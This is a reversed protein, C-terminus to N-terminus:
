FEARFRQLEARVAEVVSQWDGPRQQRFLRMTPYWPSDTRDLMWRWDCGYPLLTWVRQGLAGALHAMMTDVTILLDLSKVANAAGLIGGAEDHLDEISAAWPELQSRQPGAQLSCFKADPTTFLPALEKLPISRAANYTSSGWVLGARIERHGDAQAEQQAAACKLYPICQPISDLTTRFVRPLEVIEIQQDWAPDPDDWTIVEDAVQGQQLLPKLAPQAEITLHRARARM